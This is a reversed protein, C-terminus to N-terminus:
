QISNKNTNNSKQSKYHSYIILIIFFRFGLHPLGTGLHPSHGVEGCGSYLRSTTTKTTGYGWDVVIRTTMQRCVAVTTSKSGLSTGFDFKALHRYESIPKHLRLQAMFLALHANYLSIRLKSLSFLLEPACLPLVLRYFNVLDSFTLRGSFQWEFMKYM